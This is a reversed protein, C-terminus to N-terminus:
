DVKKEKDKSGTFDLKSQLNGKLEIEGYIGLINVGLQKLKPPKISLDAQIGPPVILNAILDNITEHAKKIEHGLPFVL